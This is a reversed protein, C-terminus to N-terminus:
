AKRATFFNIQAPIQGDEFESFAKALAKEINHRAAEGAEFYAVTSAAPGVHSSLQAMQAAGGPLAFTLDEAMGRAERFGADTLIRTVTDINRFAFPGPADPDVKPPAGLQAKAIQAPLTFWPNQQIQGWCGFTIQGGPKVAKAINAFAAVPDAFFMVGFRSIVHDFHQAPFLHDAADVVEFSVNPVDRVRLKARTVMTDSIDAGLVEGGPGVQRAAQLCSNGTGCGIDLVRQGQGLGALALVRDLVPQMQADLNAEHAVWNPGATTTWFAAQDSNSGSM